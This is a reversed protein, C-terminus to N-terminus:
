GFITEVISKLTEKASDPFWVFWGVLLVAILETIIEGYQKKGYAVFIRIVLVIMVLTGLISLIQSGFSEFNPLAVYTTDALQITNM